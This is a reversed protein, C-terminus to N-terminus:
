KYKTGVAIKANGNNIENLPIFDSQIWYYICWVHVLSKKNSKNFEYDWIIQKRIVISNKFKKNKNCSNYDFKCTNIGLYIYSIDETIDNYILLMQIDNNFNM